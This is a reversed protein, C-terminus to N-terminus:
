LSECRTSGRGDSVGYAHDAGSGCDYSFGYRLGLGYGDGKSKDGLGYGGDMTGYTTYFSFSFNNLLWCRTIEYLIIM